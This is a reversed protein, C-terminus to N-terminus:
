QSPSSSVGGAPLPGGGALCQEIVGVQEASARWGVTRWEIRTGDDAVAQVVWPRGFLVRAGLGLVFLLVIFVLDLLAVLLPIVLFLLILLAALVALGILIGEGFVELCGPDADAADGVRRVVQRFRWRVRGWVTEEGLRPVWRRRVRWLRGDPARVSGRRATPTPEERDDAAM